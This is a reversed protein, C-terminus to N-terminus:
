RIYCYSDQYKSGYYFNYTKRTKRKNQFIIQWDVHTLMEKLYRIQNIKQFLLVSLWDQHLAFGAVLPEQSHM